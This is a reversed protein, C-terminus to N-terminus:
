LTALTFTTTLCCSIPCYMPSWSGAHHHLLLLLCGTRLWSTIVNCSFTDAIPPFWEKRALQITFQQYISEWFHHPIFHYIACWRKSIVKTALGAEGRQVRTITMFTHLQRVNRGYLVCQHAILRKPASVLSCLFILDADTRSFVSGDLYFSTNHPTHWILVFCKWQVTWTLSPDIHGRM